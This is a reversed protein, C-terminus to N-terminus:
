NRASLVVNGHTIELIRLNRFDFSEGEAQLGIYGRAPELEHFEWARKGNVDLTLNTGRAEIRFKVWEGTSIPPTVSKVTKTPGQLLEGIASQKTNIQWINAAWPSGNLPARVFFGSNYNTELGRWEAELAFDGFEKETRLWGKGGELHLVGNAATFTGSNMKVWGSLDKGNFLSIWNDGEAREDASLISIGSFLVAVSIFKNLINM